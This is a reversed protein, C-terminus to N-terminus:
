EVAEKLMHLDYAHQEEEQLIKKFIRHTTIDIHKVAECAEHYFKIATNEAEITKDLQAKVSSETVEPWPNANPIWQDPNTYPVGGLQKIRDMVWTVHNWEEKMHEEFEPDVDFKGPGRSLNRCVWYQYWALLEDALAKNLYAMVMNREDVPLGAALENTPADPTSKSNSVSAALEPEKHRSAAEQLQDQSAPIANEIGQKSSQAEAEAAKKVFDNFLM